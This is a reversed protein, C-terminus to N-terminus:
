LREARAVGRVNRVTAAFLAAVFGVFLWPARDCAAAALFDYAGHLLAPVIVAAARLARSAAERGRLAAARAPAYWCGMFAGFCAHGPVATVARMLATGLGHLMVYGINEWLAFGLSVFVAYVVGDFRCDFEPSHWTARKLLAYKAGEESLGVVCFYLLIAKLLSDLPLLADLLASGMAELAKAVATALIGLLILKLLLAPSEREALDARYLLTLLILTPLIAAAILAADPVYYFFM